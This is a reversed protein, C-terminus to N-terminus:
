ANAKLREVAQGALEPHIGLLDCLQCVEANLYSDLRMADALQKQLDSILDANKDFREVAEILKAETREPLDKMFEERTM